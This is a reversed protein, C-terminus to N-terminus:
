CLSLLRRSLFIIEMSTDNNNVDQLYELKSKPVPIIDCDRFSITTECEGAFESDQFNTEDKSSIYNVATNLVLIITQLIGSSDNEPMLLVSPSLKECLVPLMMMSTLKYTHIERIITNPIMTIKTSSVSSLYILLLLQFLASAVKVIANNEENEDPFGIIEFVIFTIRKEIAPLTDNLKDSNELLVVVKEGQIQKQFIYGNRDFWSPVIARMINVALVKSSQNSEAVKVNQKVIVDVILQITHIADITDDCALAGEACAFRIMQGFPTVDSDDVLKEHCASPSLLYRCFDTLAHNVTTPPFMLLSRVKRISQIPLINQKSDSPFLGQILHLYFHSRMKYSVNELVAWATMICSVVRHNTSTMESEPSNEFVLIDSLNNLLSHYYAMHSDNNEDCEKTCLVKGLRASASSLQGAPLASVSVVFTDIIALLGMSNSTAISALLNGVRQKLWQPAHRGSFLISQFANTKSHLDMVQTGINPDVKTLGFITEIFMLEKSKSYKSNEDNGIHTHLSRLRELQFLTAYIDTIHRPLLMPRFRDLILVHFVATLVHEMEFIANHIKQLLQEKKRKSDKSLSQLVETGWQLSARPLRGALSKPLHRARDQINPLVYAELHPIIGTCISLEIICAIDTYNLLSLLGIPPPPKKGKTHSPKTVDVNKTTADIEAYCQALLTLLPILIQFVLLERDLALKNNHSDCHPVVGHVKVNRSLDQIIPDLGHDMLTEFLYVHKKEKNVEKLAEKISSTQQFEPVTRIVNICKIIADVVKEHLSMNDTSDNKM